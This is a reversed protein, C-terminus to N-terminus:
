RFKDGQCDDVEVFIGGGEIAFNNDFFVDTLSCSSSGHLLLGGGRSAFNKRFQVDQLEVVADECHVAGGYLALNNTIESTRGILKSGRTLYITGKTSPFREILTKTINLISKGNVFAVGSEASITDFNIQLSSLLSSARLRRFQTEIGSSSLPGRVHTDVLSLTSQSYIHFALSRETGEIDAFCSLIRNRLFAINILGKFVSKTISINSKEAVLVGALKGSIETCNMREIQVTSKHVDFLGAVESDKVKSVTGDKISLQANNM